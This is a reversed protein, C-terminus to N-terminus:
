PPDISRDASPYYYRANVCLRKNKAREKAIRLSYKNPEILISHFRQEALWLADRGHGGGRASHPQSAESFTYPQSILLEYSIAKHHFM